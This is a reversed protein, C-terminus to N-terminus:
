IKRAAAYLFYAIIYLLVARDYKPRSGRWESLFQNPLQDSKWNIETYGRANHRAVKGFGKYKKVISSKMHEVYWAIGLLGATLMLIDAYKM